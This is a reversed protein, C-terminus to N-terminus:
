TNYRGILAQRRAMEFKFYELKGAISQRAVQQRRDEANPTVYSHETGQSMITSSGGPGLSYTVQQISGDLDQPIIGFYTRKQSQILNYEQAVSQAYYLSEATVQDVNSTYGVFSQFQTSSQPAYTGKIWPQIDDKQVVRCFNPNTGAGIQYLYENRIPQWTVPDRVNIACCYQMNAPVYKDPGSLYFLMTKSTTIISRHTDFQDLALSFSAREDMFVGSQAFQKDIRTGPPYNRNGEVLDGVFSGQVFSPRRHLQGLFDTYTDVLQDSLIIQSIAVYGSISPVQIGWVTSPNALSGPDSIQQAGAQNAFELRLMRFVSQQALEQDSIKTGDPLTRRVRSLTSFEDFANFGGYFSTSDPAYDLKQLKAWSLDPNRGIHGVPLFMQYRIPGSVIRIFDPIPQPDIGQGWNDFPLGGEPLNSGVGKPWVAWGGISRVPCIVCGLDNVLKELEQAPNANQWDVDPPIGDPLQSVDFLSVGLAEFCMTALQQPTKLHNPDIWNNPLRFNYRGSIRADKWAWREDEFHMTMVIGGAGVDYDIDVIQCNFITISNANYGFVVNGNQDPLGYQLDIKITGRGPQVGTIDEFEASEYAGIGPFSVTALNEPLNIGFTQSPQTGFSSGGASGPNPLSPIPPALPNPVLPVSPM